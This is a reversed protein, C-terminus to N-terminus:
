AGFIRLFNYILQFIDELLNSANPDVAPNYSSVVFYSDDKINNLSGSYTFMTVYEKDKLNYQDKLYDTLKTMQSVELVNNEDKTPNISFLYVIIESNGQNISSMRMPYFPKEPQFEIKLPATIGNKIEILVKVAYYSANKCDDSSNYRHRLASDIEEPRIYDYDSVSISNACKRDDETVSYKNALNIRNAIFYFDGKNAYEQLIPTAEPPISYGYQNLWNVLVNADTAKLITIDYIDIQKFEVVEIGAERTATAGFGFGRGRARFLNALDYFIKIDGKEVNPKTKSPVPIIWAMNTIDDTKIKTSILLTETEGDWTITAKQMPLYVYQRYNPLIIGGDALGITSNLLIILFVVLFRKM